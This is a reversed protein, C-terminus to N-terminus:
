RYELLKRRLRENCVRESHHVRESFWEVLARVFFHEFTGIVRADYNDICLSTEIANRLANKTSISPNGNKSLSLKDHTIDAAIAKFKAATRLLSIPLSDTTLSHIVTQPNEENEKTNVSAFVRANHVAEAVFSTFSEKTYPFEITSNAGADLLAKARSNDGHVVAVFACSRPSIPKGRKIFDVASAESLSPGVICLDLIKSVLTELGNSVSKAEIVDLVLGNERLDAVLQRRSFLSSDVVLGSTIPSQLNESM